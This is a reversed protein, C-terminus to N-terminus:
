HQHKAFRGSKLKRKQRRKRRERDSDSDLSSSSSSSSSRGLPEDSSTSAEEIVVKRRKPPNKELEPRDAFPTGATRKSPDATMVRDLHSDALAVVEREAAPLWSRQSVVSRPSPPNQLQQLM